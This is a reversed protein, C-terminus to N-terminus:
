GAFTEALFQWMVVHQAQVTANTWFDAGCGSIAIDCWLGVSQAETVMAQMTAMKGPDFNGASGPSYADGALQPVANYWLVHVRVMNAGMAAVIAMDGPQYTRVSVTVGVPVFVSAGLQIRSGIVTLRTPM